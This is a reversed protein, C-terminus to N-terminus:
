SCNKYNSELCIKAKEQAKLIDNRSMRKVIIERAESAKEAGNASAINLWMHALLYNQAVGEGLGYRLGLSFQANAKGQDAALRYYKVAMAYDQAVGQGDSYMFGLNYQARADGQEALPEFERFAEAYDGKNYAEVGVEVNQALVPLPNLTLVAIACGMMCKSFLRLSLTKLDFFQM